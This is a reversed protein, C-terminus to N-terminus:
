LTMLAVRDGSDNYLITVIKIKKIMLMKDDTNCGDSDDYADVYDNDKVMMLTTARITTTLIMKTTKLITVIIIIMVTIIVITTM